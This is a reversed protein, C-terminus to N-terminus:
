PFTVVLGFEDTLPVSHTNNYELLANKLIAKFDLMQANSYQKPNYGATQLPFQSIGLVSIIFKYKAVSYVGFIQGVGPFTDWNDPKLYDDNWSLSFFSSEAPGMKFDGKDAIKIKMTKIQTKMAVTRHFVVPLTGELMNAKITGPLLDYDTGAVANTTEGSPEAYFTRDTVAVNGMIKVKIYITTDQLSEPFPAFSFSRNYVEAVTSVNVVFREFFYVRPDDNYGMIDKTCSSGVSMLLILAYLINTHYKMM